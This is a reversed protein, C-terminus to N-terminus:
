QISQENYIQILKSRLQNTYMYVKESSVDKMTRPHPIDIHVVERIKGPKASMVVIEDSIFVAESINHTVFLITTGTEQSIRLIEANMKERLLADLAAFPEDMLLIPPNYSLARAISVRQKMGGSLASPYFEEFGVLGTFEILKKIEKESVCKGMIRLPLVINEFVTKWELLTPDQPVLGFIRKLRAEKCSMGDVKINGSTPEVLNGICNILTSKGCGSPGILSVISHKKIKVSVSSLVKLYNDPDDPNFIMNVDQASIYEESNALLNM